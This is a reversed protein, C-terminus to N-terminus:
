FISRERYLIKSEMRSIGYNKIVRIQKIVEPM